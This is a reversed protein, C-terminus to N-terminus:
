SSKKEVFAQILRAKLDDIEGNQKLGAARAHGGGGFQSAIEAVNVHNRSRLSVRIVDPNEVLIVAAEVTALQMAENVLNETEDQRAGTQEFDAKRLTMVALQGGCHLELSELVRQRLALREPRDTQYIRRYLEDPSLGADVLKAMARLCRGDTNSFQLWGTDSCIAMALARVTTPSLEWGLAEILEIVMVGVAAASADVWRVAGIEEITAHHDIVVTKDAVATLPEALNGLQVHTCTDLIVVLEVRAALKAFSAGDAIDMDEPFLFAYRESAQEHLMAHATKGAARAACVLAVMSGLADGDPHVHTVCLLSDASEM